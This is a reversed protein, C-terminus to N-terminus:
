QEHHSQHNSWYFMICMTITQIHIGPYKYLSEIFCVVSFPSLECNHNITSHFLFFMPNIPRNSQQNVHLWCYMYKQIKMVFDLKCVIYLTDYLYIDWILKGVPLLCSYFILKGVPLLCYSYFILKGVPLLCYSYFILKGVPLLCSYQYPEWSNM